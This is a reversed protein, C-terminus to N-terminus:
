PKATASASQATTTVTTTVPGPGNVASAEMECVSKAIIGAAAIGPISSTVLSAVPGGLAACDTANFAMGPHQNSVWPQFLFCGALPLMLMVLLIRTM